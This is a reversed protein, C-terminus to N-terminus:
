RSTEARLVWPDIGEVRIGSRSRGLGTAVAFRQLAYWGVTFGNGALPQRDAVATLFIREQEDM